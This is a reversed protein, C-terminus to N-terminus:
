EVPMVQQEIDVAHHDTLTTTVAGPTPASGALQVNCYGFLTGMEFNLNKLALAYDVCARHFSTEAESLKRDADLILTFDMKRAAQLEASTLYRYRREASEWRNQAVRMVNYARDKNSLANGVDHLLQRRMENLVARERALRLQSNRVAAHGQRFGLAYSFEAGVLWEHRNSDISEAFGNSFDLVRPDYLNDGLGRYRYRAVMDLEPLLYNQDARLELRGRSIRMRQMELEGRNAIAKAAAEEFDYLIEASPPETVPRLVPGQQMPLGMVLRLRREAVLVGGTSQMSGGGSGNFSRTGETLRGYYANEVEQKARFYQELAQEVKDSEVVGQDLLNTLRQWTALTRDRASKKAHLDRYAFVLDWYANEVNSVYDRLALQFDAVSMKSNVQAIMVGNAVGPTTSRGAIRNFDVGAGQLLPHRVETELNWDFARPFLNRTANNLDDIVNHRVAVWTGTATKKSLEAQMRWLDQRFLNVGGGLIENNLTQDNKEFFARAKFMADFESLAGEVGFRPDTAQVAPGYITAALSPSQILRGGVDRLVTSHELAIRIADDLTIDLHDPDDAVEATAPATQLVVPAVEALEAVPSSELADSPAMTEEPAVYAVQAIAGSSLDQAPTADLVEALEIAEPALLAPASPAPVDGERHQVGVCGALMLLAHLFLFRMPRM